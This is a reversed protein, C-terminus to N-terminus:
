CTRRKAGIFLFLCLSLTKQTSKITTPTIITYGTRIKRVTGPPQSAIKPTTTSFIFLPPTWQLARKWWIPRTKAKRRTRKRRRSRCKNKFSYIPDPESSSPSSSSSEESFGSDSGEEKGTTGTKSETSSSPPPPPPPQQNKVRNEVRKKTEKYRYRKSGSKQFRIRNSRKRGFTVAM